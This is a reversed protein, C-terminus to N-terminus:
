PNLVTSPQVLPFKSFPISPWYPQASPAAIHSHPTHASSCIPIVFTASPFLNPSSFQLFASSSTPLDNAHLFHNQNNQPNAFATEVVTQKPWQVPPPNITRNPIWSEAQSMPPPPVFHPWSMTGSALQTKRFNQSLSSENKQGAEVFHQWESPAQFFM